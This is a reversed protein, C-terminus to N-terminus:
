GLLEKILTKIIKIQESLEEIQEKMNIYDGQNYLEIIKKCTDDHVKFVADIM